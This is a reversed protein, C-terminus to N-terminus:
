RVQISFVNKGSWSYIKTQARLVTQIKHKKQNQHCKRSIGLIMSKWDFIRFCGHSINIRIRTRQIAWPRFNGVCLSEYGYWAFGEREPAFESGQNAINKKSHFNMLCCFRSVNSASLHLLLIRSFEVCDRVKINIAIAGARWTFALGWFLVFM